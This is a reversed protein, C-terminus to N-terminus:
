KKNILEKYIMYLDQTNENKDHTVLARKRANEGLQNAFECDEFIKMIYDAMMYPADTQYIMGEEGHKLLSKIGGVDSVVVPMGLLMAEGISNSSNEITSSCVFVNTRLYHEVMQDEDCRGIWNINEQLNYKEELSKLYRVYTSQKLSRLGKNDFPSKGLIEVTVDPYYKKIIAIAEFLYHAGKIPYHAQSFSISHPLCTDYKWEYQYFKQRLIENCKHYNIKNNIQFACARDWDTRGICHKAIRLTECETEGSRRMAEFSDKLTIGKLIEYLTAKNRYKCPIGEFYHLAYISLLGQISVIARDLMNQSELIKIAVNSHNYETGWIHVVDPKLRSIAGSISQYTNPESFGEYTIKGLKIPSYDVSLSLIYLEVDDMESMLFSSQDMWGGVVTDRHFHRAVAPLEVNTIWLLVM